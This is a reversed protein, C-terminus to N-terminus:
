STDKSAEQLTKGKERWVPIAGRALNGGRIGFKRGSLNGKRPKRKMFQFNAMQSSETTTLLSVDLNEVSKLTTMEGGGPELAV